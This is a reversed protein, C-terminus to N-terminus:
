QVYSDCYECIGVRGVEIKTVAGCSTCNIVRFQVNEQRYMEASQKERNLRAQSIRNPLVIENHAVDIYAGPFYGLRIMKDLEQRATEPSVGIAPAINSILSEQQNIIIGMYAHYRQGDKKTKLHLRFLFVAPTIFFLLGYFFAGFSGSFLMIFGIIGLIVAINRVSTSNRLTTTKNNNLKRYILYVGIPWFVLTIFVIAVWPVGQSQHQFHNHNM